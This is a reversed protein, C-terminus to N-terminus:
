MWRKRKFYVIMGVVAIAMIAWAFLYGMRWHLEPMFEFNMGWIGALFTLPLFITAAVTLVKMVENQRVSLSSMYMDLNGSQMERFAEITEMVQVCHDYLDRFFPKMEARILPLEDRVLSGLVERLPWIAKRLFLLERKLDFIVPLTQPTPKDVLEAELAEIRDSLKDLVMFYADVISDMLRYALYDTNLLRERPKGSRLYDRVVEFQDTEKEGVSLVFNKGLVISIQEDSIANDSGNVTFRKLVIFLVQNYDELKTRQDTNIIDEIVLTHLGLQGCVKHLLDVDQLADVDLWKIGPQQLLAPIEEASHIDHEVIREADYVIAHIQTAPATPVEVPRREGPAKGVHKSRRQLARKLTSLQKAM